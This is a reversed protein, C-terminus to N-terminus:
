LCGNASAWNGSRTNKENTLIKLNLRLYGNNLSTDIIKRDILKLCWVIKYM